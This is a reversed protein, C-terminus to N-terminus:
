NNNICNNIIIHVKSWLVSHHELTFNINLNIKHIKTYISSSKQRVKRMRYDQSLDNLSKGTIKNTRYFPLKVIIEVAKFLKLKFKFVVESTINTFQWSHM